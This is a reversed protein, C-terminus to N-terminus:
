DFRNRWLSFEEDNDSIKPIRSYSSWGVCRYRWLMTLSLLSFYKFNKFKSRKRWVSREEEKGSSIHTKCRACCSFFQTKLNLSLKRTQKMRAGASLLFSVDVPASSIRLFIENSLNGDNRHEISTRHHLYILSCEATLLRLVDEAASWM